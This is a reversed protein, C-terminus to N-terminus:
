KNLNYFDNMKSQALYNWSYFKLIKENGIVGMKERLKSEKLSLIKKALDKFDGNKYKLGNKDVRFNDEVKENIIIPMGCAAADLQSTSEQAPWVGIDFFQYFLPLKNSQVFPQVTCGRLSKIKSIYEDDGQGLFFGKFRNEGIEHLHDIALALMLPNKSDTFRGTYLCVIDIDYFGYEQRFTSKYDVSTPLNFLDTDVALSAIKCKRKPIGFYKTIVGHVDPAIPYFLDVKKSDIRGAIFQKCQNLRQRYTVPKNFVSLHIRSESVLRYKYKNKLKVASKYDPGVIEFCYILDPRIVKIKEELNAIGLGYNFHHPCRHLTYWEKKFVGQEVQKPGLYDLYIKDYDQSTAYVQLDTTVSHVEHGLKGFAVPLYNEAYGMKESFWESLIMIIM